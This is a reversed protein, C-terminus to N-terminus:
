SKIDLCRFWLDKVQLRERSEFLSNRLHEISDLWELEYSSATETFTEQLARGIFKLNEPLKNELEEIQGHNLSLM